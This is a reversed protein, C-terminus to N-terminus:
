DNYVVFKGKKINDGCKTVYIYVGTGLRKGTGDLGDWQMVIKDGGLIQKLGNFVQHMSIDYIFIEGYGSGTGTAPFNIIRNVSYRFPQPFVYDIEASVINGNNVPINNFIDSETFVSSLQTGYYGSIISRGGSFSQTSLQFTIQTTRPASSLGGNIDCNSIVPVVLNSNGNSNDNFFLFINSVAESTIDVSMSPPTFSLNLLPAILPYDAANKFYKGPITRSGTFYTWQGFSNFEVNFTSGAEVIAHNISFLARQDPMFQWIRKLIGFGFKEKLFINWVALDYGDNSGFSRYTYGFYDGMYNYYDHISDYVFHEMATSTLEYYFVDSDRYIYNGVQIGHHFEHAITVKAADIGKTYYNANTYSCDMETFATYTSDTIQQDLETYGYYSGGLNQLYVDYRDDGGAGNDSPPPPYGLINVEFNYSSDAAKALENVDYTTKDTGNLNYHIRFKGAPSVISTDTPPRDLISSIVAQREPSYKRYNIKVQNVLGFSCKVTKGAGAASPIKVTAAKGKMRLLENYLSDLNQSFHITAPILLFITLLRKM